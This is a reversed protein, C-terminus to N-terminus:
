SAGGTARRSEQYATLVFAGLVITNLTNWLLALSFEGTAAFKWTGVVTTLALFAFTLVQPVVFTFPSTRRRGSRSGTVHWDTSRQLLANFFARVYIPFSASAMMLSEWRFSGITFLAVVVQMLYFGAYYALWMGVSVDLNVPTLNLYIQLPPVLLLLAPAIGSLYFASSGLYQLRQDLTLRRRSSLPNHRLLIEFGGTAWRLQQKTYAEVTEPTHGVALVQGTYVSRWGHEHLLISTWIDESKSKEYMGGIQEVAARRLIMNTGVCFAANFRNKGPQILSYFVSQMYGAGRSILTHLNDYVQPSQVLAVNDNAMFPLLEELFEPRPVFDADLIVFYEGDTCRLGHNVNGAKAHANGERRLYEAGLEEALARVADSKGDDLVITRHLGRIAVAAAVTRRIVALNEGYTTIFVDVSVPVDHLHLPWKEPRDILPDADALDPRYLARRAQHFAFDRPDFGSSLITWLSVLALAIIWTEAVIVLLYPLPDGRHSPNLLFQAYLLVGITAVLVLMMLSPSSSKAVDTTAPYRDTDQETAQADFRADTTTASMRAVMPSPTRWARRYPVAELRRSAATTTVPL